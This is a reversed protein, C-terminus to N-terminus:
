SFQPDQSVIPLMCLKVLRRVVSFNHELDFLPNEVHFLLLAPDQGLKDALQRSKVGEPSLRTVSM